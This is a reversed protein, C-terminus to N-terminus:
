LKDSDRTHSQSYIIICLHEQGRFGFSNLKITTTPLAWIADFGTSKESESVPKGYKARLTDRVSFCPRDADASKLELTVTALYVESPPASAVEAGKIKQGSADVFSLDVDFSSGALTENPLRTRSFRSDSNDVTVTHGKRIALLSSGWKLDKWGPSDTSAGVAAAAGVWAMVVVVVMLPRM